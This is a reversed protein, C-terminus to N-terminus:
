PRSYWMASSLNRHRYYFATLSLARLDRCASQMETKLTAHKPSQWPSKLDKLSNTTSVYEGRGVPWSTKQLALPDQDKM